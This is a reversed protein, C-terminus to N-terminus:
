EFYNLVLMTEEENTEMGDDSISLPKNIFSFFVYQVHM